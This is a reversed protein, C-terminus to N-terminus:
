RKRCEPKKVCTTLIATLKDAKEMADEVCELAFVRSEM